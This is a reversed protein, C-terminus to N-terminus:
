EEVSSSPVTTWGSAAAWHTPPPSPPHLLPLLFGACEAAAAAFEKPLDIIGAKRCFAAWQKQKSPSRFFEDSFCAPVSEPLPEEYRSFTRSIATRLLAYEYVFSRQLVLVDAFDKMRSNAMGLTVMTKAKEAIATAQPYVLLVPADFALVAPYKSLIPAPTVVDGVGLDFRLRTEAVGLFGTLTIRTGGYQAEERIAIAKVSAPDFTMGDPERVPWACVRAFVSELHSQDAQGM